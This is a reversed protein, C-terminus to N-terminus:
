ILEELAQILPRIGEVPIEIAGDGGYFACISIYKHLEGKISIADDTEYIVKGIKIEGGGREICVARECEAKYASLQDIVAKADDHRKQLEAIKM